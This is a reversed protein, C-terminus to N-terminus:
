RLMERFGRELRKWLSFGGDRDRRPPREEALKDYMYRTIQAVNPRATVDPIRGALRFPLSIGDADFLYRVNRYRGSLDRSFESSLVLTGQLDVGGDRDAWGRGVISYEDAILRLNSSRVRGDDVTFTGEARDFSARDDRVLSIFAPGAADIRDIGEVADMAELVRRVPNFNALVGKDLSFRGRGGLNRVVSPWDKGSSRFRGELNLRGNVPEAPELPFQALLNGLELSEVAPNLEVEFGKGDRNTFAGEGRVRGGLAEVDLGDVKVGTGNWRVNGRLNHYPVGKLRGNSSALHGKFALVGETFEASGESVLNSLSDARYAADGTVDALNLLNSQVSYHLTPRNLDTLLGQLRLDSLGSRLQINRIEIDRGRFELEGQLGQITRHKGPPGIVNIGALRLSGTITPPENRPASQRRLTFDANVTGDLKYGAGAPVLAQWGALPLDATKVRLRVVQEPQQHISGSFAVTGTHLRAESPHILLQNKRVRMAMALRATVGPPKHFWKGYQIANADVTVSTHIKLDDLRGEVVNALNLPKHVVLAAPLVRNAWPIQRLQDLTVPSLQLEAKIRGENWAAAKSFDVEGTFTANDAAAGFLSGTVRMRSLRPRALRGSVRTSVALPASPRLYGPLHKELLKWGRAAFVNPLTEARLELDVPNETWKSLPRSTGVTGTVSFPQGGDPTLTGSLDVNVRRGGSSSLAVDINHLRLEEPKDSSRDIFYLKGGTASVTTGAGHVSQFGSNLPQAPTLINVDGYENRIVQIEPQNLVIHSITPNGTFLSLWGLSITTQSAHILPTAAFRPDDAVRLDTLTIGLSGPHQLFSLHVADFTVARGIADAMQWRIMEKRNDLLAELGVVAAVALVVTLSLLVLLRSVKSKM